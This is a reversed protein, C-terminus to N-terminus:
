VLVFLALGIVGVYTSVAGSTMTNGVAYTSAHCLTINWCNPSKWSSAPVATNGNISACIVTSDQVGTADVLNVPPMKGAVFTPSCVQVFAFTGAPLPGPNSKGSGDLRDVEVFVTDSSFTIKSNDPVTGGAVTFVTGSAGSITATGGSNDGTAFSIVPSIDGSNGSIAKGCVAGAYRVDPCVCTQSGDANLVPNPTACQGSAATVCGTCSLDGCYAGTWGPQCRCMVAAGAANSTVCVGGNKCPNVACTVAPPKPVCLHDATAGVVVNAGGATTTADVTAIAPNKTCVTSADTCPNPNCPNRPQCFAPATLGAGV